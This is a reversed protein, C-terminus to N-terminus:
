HRRCIPAPRHYYRGVRASHSNVATLKQNRGCLVAIMTVDVWNPERNLWGGDPLKQPDRGHRRIVLRLRHTLCKEALRVVSVGAARRHDAVSTTSTCIVMVM